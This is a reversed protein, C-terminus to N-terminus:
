RDSALINRSAIIIRQIESQSPPLYCLRMDIVHSSCTTHKWVNSLLALGDLKGFLGRMGGKEHPVIIAKSSPYM